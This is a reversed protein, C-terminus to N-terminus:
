KQKVPNMSPLINSINSAGLIAAAGEFGATSGQVLVSPIKVIEPNKTAAELIEKLMALQMVRDQGLIATQAKQGEAIEMLRLKEGEGLLKAADKQFDAAQKAIQAAILTPQQDAQARAKETEIRQDQANKEEQFTKKLQQALQERLRAVMLEPPYAPEGFRIEKISIYAKDGEPKVLEEVANELDTRNYILELAKRDQAGCVNRLISRYTPTIIDNEVEEINGVSAVVYPAKEPDVQILIRSDLPIEWGEMRVTIARDAAGVPVPIQEQRETQAISGNQDVKLDIYRRLFGGSYEWTQVRTDIPVVKFADSNLYYQGPTLVKEWIGRCGEPVVQAKLGFLSLVVVEKRTETKIQVNSKVVGVYGEVVVTAPMNENVDFLYRNIKYTGPNLVSVQPGKQGGHTLFYEADLMKQFEEDQWEDAFAEGERLPMGDKAILKGCFGALITIDKKMEVKNLVRILFSPHFGPSLTKAQSGKEGELAVIQGSKMPKGLYIRNLHGLEDPGVIVFSTSLLLFIGVLTLVISGVIFPIGFMRCFSVEESRKSETEGNKGKLRQSVVWLVIAIMIFIVGFIFRIM